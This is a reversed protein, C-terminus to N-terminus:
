RHVARRVSSLDNGVDVLTDSKLHKYLAFSEKESSTFDAIDDQESVWSISAEFVFYCIGGLTLFILFMTGLSGMSHRVSHPRM